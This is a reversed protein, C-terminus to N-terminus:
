LSQLNRTLFRGQRHGDKANKRCNPCVPRQRFIRYEALKKSQSGSKANKWPPLTSRNRRDLSRISPSTGLANRHPVSGVPAQESFSLSGISRSRYEARGSFARGSRTSRSRCLRCPSAGAIGPRVSREESASIVESFISLVRVTPKQDPCTRPQPFSSDSDPHRAKSGPRLAISKERRVRDLVETLTNIRLTKRHPIKM